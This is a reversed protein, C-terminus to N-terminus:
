GGAEPCAGTLLRPGFYPSSVAYLGVLEILCPKFGVKNLKKSATHQLNRLILNKVIKIVQAIRRLFFGFSIM